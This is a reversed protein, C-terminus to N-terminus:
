NLSIYSGIADAVVMPTTHKVNLDTLCSHLKEVSKDGIVLILIDKGVSIDDIYILKNKECYQKVAHIIEDASMAVRRHISGLAQRRIYRIRLCM